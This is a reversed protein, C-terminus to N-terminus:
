RGDGHRRPFSCLSASGSRFLSENVYISPFIITERPFAQGILGYWIFAVAALALDRGFPAMDNELLIRRQRFLGLAALVAGPMGITYRTITHIAAIWDQGSLHYTLKVLTIQMLFIVSILITMRATFGRARESYPLLQVGFALLPLFSVALLGARLADELLTPKGGHIISFM